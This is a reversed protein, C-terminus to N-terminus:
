SRDAAFFAALLRGIEEPEEEQLFHGCDPLAKVEAQPLDAAVRNMTEAVDPLIRDQVGYVILAPGDFDPLGAAIENFSDLDVGVGAKALALRSDDSKFPEIVATLVEDSLSDRDALGVRMAEELGAPSTLVDRREPILCATIFEQVADSFKPYVLTNLLAIRSVRSQNQLAWHVGVPGGLDHVGLGVPGIALEELLGDIASEFFASDYKVDLPKSSGGFGPLDIAIVRNEEAIAPMVHRWLYSSTPWGHVLLVAPGEGM